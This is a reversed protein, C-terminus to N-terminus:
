SNFLTPNNNKSTKWLEYKIKGADYLTDYNVIKELLLMDAIEFKSAKIAWNLVLDMQRDYKYIENDNFFRIIHDFGNEAAICYIWDLNDIYSLLLEITALDGQRVAWQLAGEDKKYEFSQQMLFRVLKLNKNQVAYRLAGIECSQTHTMGHNLFYIILDSYSRQIVIEFAWNNEVYINVNYNICQIVNQTDGIICYEIFIKEQPTM